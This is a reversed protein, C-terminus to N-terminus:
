RSLKKGNTNNVDRNNRSIYAFGYNGDKNMSVKDYIIIRENCLEKITEIVLTDDYYGINHLKNLIDSVYFPEEQNIIMNRIMLKFDM